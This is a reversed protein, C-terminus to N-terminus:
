ALRGELAKREEKTADRSSRYYYKISQHEESGTVINMNTFVRCGEGYSKFGLGRIAWVLDMACGRTPCTLVHM